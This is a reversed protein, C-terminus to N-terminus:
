ELLTLQELIMFARGHRRIVALQDESGYVLLGYGERESEAAM